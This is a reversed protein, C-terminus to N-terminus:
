KQMPSTLHIHIPEIELKEVNSNWKHLQFKADGFVTTAFRKINKLDEKIPGGTAIEDVYLGEQFHEIKEVLGPYAEKRTNM